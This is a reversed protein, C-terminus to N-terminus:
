KRSARPPVVLVDCAVERLVDGAVTGLFVHALGAHGQTGLVLLDSATQKAAKAIVTRASGHRVLLKWSPADKPSVKAKALSAGLLDALERSAKFQFERRRGQVASEPLSPYALNEYPPSFAHIVTARLRPPELLRATLRVVEPAAQDFDLAAAPRSYRARASLRVVLVPLKAQRLVREATSGLFLDRIARGGGRGMVILEAKASSALAAIEKFASGVKVAREIQIGKPLSKALHRAEDALAKEADREARRQDEPAIASPVVHLLTIRADGSLPLLAVRGLVRDSIPSFDVAVLLARLQATPQGTSVSRVNRRKALEDVQTSRM